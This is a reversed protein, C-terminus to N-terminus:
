FMGLDLGMSLATWRVRAAGTGETAASWLAPDWGRLPMAPLPKGDPGLPRPATPMVACVRGRRLALAAGHGDSSLPNAIFAPADRWRPPLPPSGPLPPPPPPPVIAAAASSAAASGAADRRRGRSSCPPPLMLRPRLRGRLVFPGVVSAGRIEPGPVDLVANTRTALDFGIFAGDFLADDDGVRPPDASGSMGIAGPQRASRRAHQEAFGSKVKGVADLLVLRRASELQRLRRARCRRRHQQAAKDDDDDDDDDDDEDEDEEDQEDGEDARREKQEDPDDGLSRWAAKGVLPLCAFRVALGWPASETAAAVAAAADAGAVGEGGEAAAQSAM